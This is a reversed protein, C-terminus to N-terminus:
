VTAVAKQATKREAITAPPFASLVPGSKSFQISYNLIYSIRLSIMKPRIVGILARLAGRDPPFRCPLALLLFDVQTM